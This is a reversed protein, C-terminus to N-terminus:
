EAEQPAEARRLGVNRRGARSEAARASAVGVLNM